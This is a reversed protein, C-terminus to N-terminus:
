GRVAAGTVEAPMSCELCSLTIWGSSCWHGINLVEAGTHGLTVMPAGRSNSTRGAITTPEAARHPAGTGTSMLVQCGQYSANTQQYESPQPIPLGQLKPSLMRSWIRRYCAMAVPPSVIGNMVALGFSYRITPWCPCIM